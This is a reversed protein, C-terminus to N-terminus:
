FGEKLWNKCGDNISIQNRLKRKAFFDSIPDNRASRGQLQQFTAGQQKLPPLIKLPLNNYMKTNESVKKLGIKTAM